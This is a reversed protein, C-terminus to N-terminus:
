QGFFNALTAKSVINKKYFTGKVTDGTEPISTLPILTRIVNLEEPTASLAVNKLLVVAKDKESFGIHFVVSNQDGTLMAFNIEHIPRPEHKGYQITQNNLDVTIKKLYRPIYPTGILVVLLMTGAIVAAMMMANGGSILAWGVGIVMLIVGAVGVGKFWRPLINDNIVVIGNLSVPQSVQAAKNATVHPAFPAYPTSPAERLAEPTDALPQPPLSQHPQQSAQPLQQAPTQAPQVAPSGLQPRPPLPPLPPLTSM